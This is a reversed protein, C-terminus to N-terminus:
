IHHTSLWPRVINKLSDKESIESPKKAKALEKLRKDVNNLEKSIANYVSAVFHNEEALADHLAEPVYKELIDTQTTM